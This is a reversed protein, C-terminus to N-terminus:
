NILSNTPKAPKAQPKCEEDQLKFALQEDAKLLFGKCVEKVKSSRSSHSTAM